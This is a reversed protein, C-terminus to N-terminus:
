SLASTITYLVPAEPKPSKSLYQQVQWPAELASLWNSIAETEIAGQAHGPYCILCIIGSNALNSLAVELATVSHEKLTTISKDGKPLYGFNFMACDITQKIHAQMTQHGCQHLEVNNLEAAHLRNKTNTIAIAQIDFALVTEFGLRALFETDHGNGCTADVALGRTREVFHQRILQHALRTLAM